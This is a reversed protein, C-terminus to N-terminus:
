KLSRLIADRSEKRRRMEEQWEKSRRKREAKETLWNQRNNELKQQIRDVINGWDKKSIECEWIVIVGWGKTELDRYNCLDRERNAVVKARWFDVNTKPEVYKSCGKHGHWFCGNVFICTHYKALVIDPKGPLSKVNVRYRYGLGFLEKRLKVEPKTNKSRINAMCRHRQQPTLVDSM